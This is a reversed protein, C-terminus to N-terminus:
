FPIDDATWSGDGKLVNDNNFANNEQSNQQQSVKRHLRVESSNLSIVDKGYQDNPNEKVKQVSLEGGVRITDGKAANKTIYEATAGWVSVSFWNTIERPQGAKDKYRKKNAFNLYTFKRGDRATRLVPDKGITGALSFNNDLNM